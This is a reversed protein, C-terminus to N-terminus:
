EKRFPIISISDDRNYRVEFNTEDSEWVKIRLGDSDIYEDTCVMEIIDEKLCKHITIGLLISSILFIGILIKFM